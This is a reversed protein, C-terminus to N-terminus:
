GNSVILRLANPYDAGWTQPKGEEYSSEGMAYLM